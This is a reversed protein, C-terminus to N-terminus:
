RDWLESLPVALVRPDRTPLLSSGAYFIVGSEFNNGCRAALRALGRGDSSNISASSKVEIGWVRTGRTVVLDVEVKDKDRYHWFQLDPDTWASQAIVQQGVFSELLRSMEARRALWDSASRRALAAALGTDVFHVKPARM